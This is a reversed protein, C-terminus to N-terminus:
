SPDGFVGDLAFVSPLLGANVTERIAAEANTFMGYFTSRSVFAAAVIVQVTVNALGHERAMDATAQLIRDRQHAVVTERPIGHRGPPLQSANRTM